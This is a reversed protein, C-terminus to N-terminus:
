RIVFQIVQHALELPRSHRDDPEVSRANQAVSAEIGPADASEHAELDSEIWNWPNINISELTASCSGTKPISWLSDGRNTTTSSRASIRPVQDPVRSGAKARVDDFPIVDTKTPQAGIGM